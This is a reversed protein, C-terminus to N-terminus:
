HNLRGKIIVAAINKTASIDDLPNARLLVLDAVKGVTVTGIVSSQGFYEAATTTAGRLADFPTVGARVFNALEKHISVGPETVDIGSDTGVLLKVGANYLVKTIARHYEGAASGNLQEIITITPCVYAGAKVTAAAQANLASGPAAFGGLHELSRQGSALAHDLGVLTPVHGAFTMGKRGAIAVITDYAARSLRQYVKIERFGLDYQHDIMPEIKTPDDSLQTQPWQAPSGDFGATLSFIRPGKIRGTEIDGVLAPLTEYGWMNRVTTIGNSVYKELDARGIHVHMDILGPLLYRGTGDIRLASTPIFVQSAPGIATIRGADVLVTQDAIVQERDMPVVNVGVIAITTADLDGVIPTDTSSTASCNAAALVLLTAAIAPTRM